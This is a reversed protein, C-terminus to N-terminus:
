LSSINAIGILAVIAILAIVVPTSKRVPAAAEPQPPVTAPPNQNPEQM